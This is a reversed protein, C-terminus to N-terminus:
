KRSHNVKGNQRKFIPQRQSRRNQNRYQVGRKKIKSSYKHGTTGQAEGRVEKLSARGHPGVPGKETTGVTQNHATEPKQLKEETVCSAEEQAVKGL